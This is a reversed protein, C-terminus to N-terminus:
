AHRAAMKTAKRFRRNRHGRYTVPRGRVHRQYLEAVRISEEFLQATWDSEWSM